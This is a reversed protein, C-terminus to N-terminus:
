IIEKIFQTFESKEDTTLLRYQAIKSNKLPLIKKISAELAKWQKYKSTKEKALGWTDVIQIFTVPDDMGVPENKM